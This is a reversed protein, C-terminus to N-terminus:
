FELERKNFLLVTLAYGIAIYVLVGIAQPIPYGVHLSLRSSLTSSLSAFTLENLHLNIVIENASALSRILIDVPDIAVILYLIAALGTSQSYFVPIMTISAPFLMSFVSCLATIMVVSLQDGQITIGCCASGVVFLLALIVADTLVLVAYEILKALVVNPRSIGLGIAIQMTKAKFDAAFITLFEVTGLVFTLVTFLTHSMSAMNVGNYEKSVATHLSIGITLAYFIVLIIYRPINHFIRHLDAHIYNRM